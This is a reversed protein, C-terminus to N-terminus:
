EDDALLRERVLHKQVKGAPTRPLAELRKILVPVKPSALGQSRVLETLAGQDLEDTGTTEVAAAVVEGLRQDPIGVVAADAVSPHRLLLEEIERSSFKEGGRNVIDKTRGTVTIWGKSDVKGVDGTYVWGADDLVEADLTPDVYGLMREPGRVRLEGESGSPLPRREEDVAEVEVGEATLGDTRARRELPDTPRALAASPFETLGWSRHAEIGAAAAREILEPPVAAGGCCFQRLAPRAIGAAEYADLIGRLFPTAGAMYTAGDREIARVCHAADWRDLLVTRAGVIAPIILGQLMGTIHTLPSSMVITDRFTLGWARIMSMAEHLLTASSHLVGKPSATTGSTYLVLCPEEAALPLRDGPLPEASVEHGLTRWGDAAGSLLRGQPQWGCEALAEDVEQDLRRGRVDAAAVVVSPRLQGAIFAFERRRYLTVVPASVCGIRWIAAATAVADIGNPLSWMVTSGPEGGAEVLQRAILDARRGLEARSVRAADEGLVILAEEDPRHEVAQELVWGIRWDSRM